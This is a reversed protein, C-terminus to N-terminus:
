LKTKLINDELQSVEETVSPTSSRALSQNM